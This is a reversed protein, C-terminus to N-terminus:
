MIAKWGEEGGKSQHANKNYPVAKISDWGMKRSWERQVSKYEWYDIFIKM